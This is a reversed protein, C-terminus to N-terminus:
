VGYVKKDWTDISFADGFIVVPNKLECVELIQYKHIKFEPRICITNKHRSYFACVSNFADGGTHILTDQLNLHILRLTLKKM